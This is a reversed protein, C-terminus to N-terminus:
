RQHHSPPPCWSMMGGAAVRGAGGTVSHSFPDHGRAWVSGHPSVGVDERCQADGVHFWADELAKNIMTMPWRWAPHVAHDFREVRDGRFFGVLLQGGSRLATFLQGLM